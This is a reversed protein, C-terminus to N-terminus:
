HTHLPPNYFTYNPQLATNGTTGLVTFLTVIFGIMWDLVRDVTVGVRSLEIHRRISPHNRFRLKSLLPRPRTSIRYLFKGPLVSSYWSFSMWPIRYKRRPEFRAGGSHSHLANCNVAVRGAERNYNQLDNNLSATFLEQIILSGCPCCLPIIIRPQRLWHKFPKFGRVELCAAVRGGRKSSDLLGSNPHVSVAAWFALWRLAPIAIPKMLRDAITKAREFVPFM